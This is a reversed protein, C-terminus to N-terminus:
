KHLHGFILDVVAKSAQGTEYNHYFELIDKCNELILDDNLELILKELEEQNNAVMYPSDKVEFYLTREKETYENLDSQFLIIPRGLLAFDGACSSYDTVLMDSVLLLDAMDGYSCVDIVKDTFDVGTLTRVGPHSRMLCIWQCGYKKELVDLTRIVQFDKVEMGGLSDKRITPAYLLIKTDLGIGLSLKINQVEQKNINILRDNRPIGVKLIEGKYRLASRYQMEGYDSGSVCIDCFGPMSEPRYFNKEIFPNDYQIKKFAKDGHWLQVFYQDKHKPINPFSFNTVVVKSLVYAKYLERIDRADIVKVYDPLVNLSVNKLLWCIEIEPYMKHLSESVAKPNDSYQRGDFSVFLVRDKM